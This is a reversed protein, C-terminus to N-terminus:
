TREGPPTTPKRRGILSLGFWFRHEHQDHFRKQRATRYNCRRAEIRLGSPKAWRLATHTRRRKCIDALVQIDPKSYAVMVAGRTSLRHRPQVHKWMTDDQEGGRFFIARAISEVLTM